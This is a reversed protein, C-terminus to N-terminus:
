LVDALERFSKIQYDADKSQAKSKSIRQITKMGLERGAKIESDPNDGIVWVDAPDVENEFLIKRFIDIKHNRPSLRPDDIHIEAFDNKIRLASIKALQLKEFGTTVLIKKDTIKKLHSYDEFTQIALESYDLDDMAKFYTDIMSQPAGYKQFVVDMPLIWLESVVESAQSVSMNKKYYNEIVVVAPDFIKPDMSNTEFITDDLDLILM